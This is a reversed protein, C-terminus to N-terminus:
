QDQQEEGLFECDSNFLLNVYSLSFDETLEGDVEKIEEETVEVTIYYKESAPKEVFEAELAVAESYREKLLDTICPMLEEIPISTTTMVWAGEKKFTAVKSFGEHKFSVQYQGEEMWWNVSKADKYKATFSKTVAIPTAQDAGYAVVGLLMLFIFISKM